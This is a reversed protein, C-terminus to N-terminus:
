ACMARQQKKTAAMYFGEDNEEGQELFHYRYLMQFVLERFKNRPLSM